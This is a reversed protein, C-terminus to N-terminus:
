RGKNINTLRFSEEEMELRAEVFATHRNDKGFSYGTVYLQPQTVQVEWMESRKHYRVLIKTTDLRFITATGNKLSRIRKIKM